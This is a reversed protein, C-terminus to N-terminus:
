TLSTIRAQCALTFTLMGLTMGKTDADPVYEFSRIESFRVTQNLTPNNGIATTLTSFSAFVEDLRGLYDSDGAFSTLACQIQYTEERKYEPGLTAVEQEGTHVALVQLTIPSTYLSLPKGFFVTANPLVAQAISMFAHVASPVSSSM